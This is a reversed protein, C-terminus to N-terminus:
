ELDSTSLYGIEFYDAALGIQDPFSSSILSAGVLSGGAFGWFEGL